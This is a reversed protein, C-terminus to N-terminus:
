IYCFHRGRGSVVCCECSVPMRAGPPIRVRLGLLRTDAYKLRLGRPWRCRSIGTGRNSFYADRGVLCIPFFYFRTFTFTFPVRYRAMSACLPLLSRSRNAALHLYIYRWADAAKDRPFVDPVWEIPPQNPGLAPRSPHPFDRRWWPEFTWGYLQYLTAIGDVRDLGVLLITYQGV